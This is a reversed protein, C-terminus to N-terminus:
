EEEKGAAREMTQMLLMKENETSIHDFRIMEKTKIKLGYKMWHPQTVEEEGIPEEQPRLKTIHGNVMTNGAKDKVMKVNPALEVQNQFNISLNTVSEQSQLDRSEQRQLNNKSSRSRSSKSDEKTGKVLKTVQVPKKAVPVTKRKIEVQVKRPVEEVDLDPLTSCSQDAYKRLIYSKLQKDESM